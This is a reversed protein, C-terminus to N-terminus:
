RCCRRGRADAGAPRRRRAACRRGPPARRPYWRGRPDWDWGWGWGRRRRWRTPPSAPRPFLRQFMTSMQGPVNAFYNVKGGGAGADIAKPFIRWAPGLPIRFRLPIRFAVRDARDLSRNSEDAHRYLHGPGTPDSPTPSAAAPHTPTKATALRERRHERGAASCPLSARCVASLPPIAPRRCPSRPGPDHTSSLLRVGHHRGDLGRGPRRPTVVHCRASAQRGNQGGTRLKVGKPPADRARLRTRGRRAGTGRRRPARRGISQGPFLPMKMVTSFFSVRSREVPVRVRM